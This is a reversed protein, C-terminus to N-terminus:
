RAIECKKGIEISKLPYLRKCRDCWFGILGGDSMYATMLEFEGCKPCTDGEDLKM